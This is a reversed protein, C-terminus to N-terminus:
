WAPPPSIPAPSPSSRGIAAGHGSEPVARGSVAPLARPASRSLDTQARRLSPLRQCVDKHEIVEAALRLSSGFRADQLAGPEPNLVGVQRWVLDGDGQERGEDHAVEDPM